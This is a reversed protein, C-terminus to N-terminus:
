DDVREQAPCYNGCDASVIDLDAGGLNNLCVLAHVCKLCKHNRIYENIYENVNM